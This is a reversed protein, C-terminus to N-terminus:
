WWATISAIGYGGAEEINGILELKMGGLAYVLARSEAALAAFRELGLPRADPHTTTAFVPGLTVYDAGIRNAQQVEENSHCSAGLLINKPVPRMQCHMLETSTLHLGDADMNRFRDVSTNVILLAGYEQCIKRSHLALAQLEQESCQHARLQILRIGKKLAGTLREDFETESQWLGTILMERPMRLATVIRANAQPFDYRPLDAVDIWVCPQAQISRATGQFSTVRWVDLLVSKDAYDHTIRILPVATEVTIGVEEQLERQLAEFVTENKEVKGGPFEWLGGQHVHASRRAIFVQHLDNQIVGVAVHVRKMQSPNDQNVGTNPM